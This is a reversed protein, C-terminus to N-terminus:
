PPRVARKSEHKSERLGIDPYLFNLKRLAITIPMATLTHALQRHDALNKHQTEIQSIRGEKRGCDRLAIRGYKRVKVAAVMKSKM